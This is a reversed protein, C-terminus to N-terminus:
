RTADVLTVLSMTGDVHMNERGSLERHVDYPGDRGALLIIISEHM